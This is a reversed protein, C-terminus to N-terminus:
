ALFAPCFRALLVMLLESLCGRRSRDMDNQSVKDISEVKPDTVGGGHQLRGTTVDAHTDIAVIVNTPYTSSNIFKVFPDLLKPKSGKQKM